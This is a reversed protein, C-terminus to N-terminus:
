IVDWFDVFFAKKQGFIEPCYPAAGGGKKPYGGVGFDVGGELRGKERDVNGGGRKM